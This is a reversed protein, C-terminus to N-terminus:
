DDISNGHFSLKKKYTSLKRIGNSKPPREPGAKCHFKVRVYVLRDNLVSSGKLKESKAISLISKSNQEYIRKADLVKQWSDFESNIAFSAM